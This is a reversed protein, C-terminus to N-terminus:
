QESRRGPSLRANPPVASAALDPRKMGHDRYIANLCANSTQSRGIAAAGGGSHGDRRTVAQWFGDYPWREGQGTAYLFALVFRLTHGPRVPAKEAEAAAEELASLAKRKMQETSFRMCGIQFM